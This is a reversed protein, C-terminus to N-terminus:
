GALKAILASRDEERVWLNLDLTTRGIVEDRSYGTTELFCQNADILRGEEADSHLPVRETWPRLATASM